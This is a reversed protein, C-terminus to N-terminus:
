RRRSQLDSAFAPYDPGNIVAHTKSIISYLLTYDRRFTPESVVLAHILGALHKIIVSRRHSALYNLPRSAPGTFATEKNNLLWQWQAHALKNRDQIVAELDNRLLNTIAAYQAPVGAATTSITIELHLPVAYHRRFALEVARLWRDLQSNEQSLLKREKSNFGSPDAVIKRLHAEALLGVMLQHMRAAFDTGPADGRRIAAKHAREAQTLGASVDRLNASHRRFPHGAPLSPM